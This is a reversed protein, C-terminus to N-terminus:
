GVFNCLIRRIKEFNRICFNVSNRSIKRFKTFKGKFFGRFAKYQALFKTKRRFNFFWKWPCGVAFILIDFINSFHLITHKLHSGHFFCTKNGTVPVVWVSDTKVTFLVAFETLIQVSKIKDQM